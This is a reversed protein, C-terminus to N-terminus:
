YDSEVVNVWDEGRSQDWFSKERSFEVGEVKKGGLEMRERKIM